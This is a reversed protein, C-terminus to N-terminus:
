KVWVLPAQEGPACILEVAVGYTRELIDQRIVTAPPGAAVVQGDRMLLLEDAFRGAMNVDHSVCVVAMRWDRALRQMMRYIMLQAKIDLHSTPEDLLLVSPQQALARAIMVRQAEGGSLEELTRGALGLTETMIMAQRAVALDQEGALGLAGGHAFRGMLVIQEVPFPFASQPFQPVYALLRALQRAAHKPLARGDLLIEGAQPRLSGMLCRLLTTKGSGNPGLLCLLKGPAAQLSVGALVPQGPRYAFALDRAELAHVYPETM